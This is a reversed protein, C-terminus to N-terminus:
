WIALMGKRLITSTKTLPIHLRRPETEGCCFNSSVSSGTNYSLKIPLCLFICILPTLTPQGSLSLSFLLGWSLKPEKKFTKKEEGQAQGIYIPSAQLVTQKVQPGWEPRRVNRQEIKAPKERRQRKALVM